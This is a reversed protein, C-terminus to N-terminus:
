GKTPNAAHHFVLHATVQAAPGSMHLPNFTIGFATRDVDLTAEVTAKRSDATLTITADFSIPQTREAITLRGRAAAATRSTLTVDDVRVEIRPHREAHFFRASRLHEDRKNQKTDVSAADIVLSVTMTGDAAVQAAGDLGAFHGRVTVLGWFHKVAFEVRSAPGDLTWEGSAAIDGILSASDFTTQKASTM